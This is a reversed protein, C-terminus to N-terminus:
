SFSCARTRNEYLTSKACSSMWWAEQRERSTTLPVAWRRFDSVKGSLSLLDLKVLSDWHITANELTNGRGVQGLTLIVCPTWDKGTSVKKKKTSAKKYNFTLLYFLRQQAGPEGPSKWEKTYGGCYAAWHRLDQYQWKESSSIPESLHRAKSFKRCSILPLLWDGPVSKGASTQRSYGRLRWPDM